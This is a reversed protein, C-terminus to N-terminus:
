PDKTRREKLHNEEDSDFVDYEQPIKAIKTEKFEIAIM